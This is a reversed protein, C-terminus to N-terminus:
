QPCISGLVVVAMARPSLAAGYFSLFHMATVVFTRLRHVGHCVVFPLYLDLLCPDHGSPEPSWLETVCVARFRVRASLGVSKWLIYLSM